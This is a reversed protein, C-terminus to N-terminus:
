LVRYQNGANHTSLYMRQTFFILVEGEGEKKKEEGTPVLQPRSLDAYGAM